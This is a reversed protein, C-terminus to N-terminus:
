VDLSSKEILKLEDLPYCKGYDDYLTFVSSVHKIANNKENAIALNNTVKGSREDTCPEITEWICWMYFSFGRKDREDILLQMPGHSFKRTSTIRTTAPVTKTSKAM